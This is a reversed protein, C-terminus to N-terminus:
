DQYALAEEATFHQNFTFAFPTPGHEILHDLREKVGRETPKHGIPAWYLVYNPSTGQLFWEARRDLAQAHRGQYTFSRLHEITEWISLNLLNIGKFISGEDTPTPQSVFGASRSALYDIEDAWAVFDAMIPHDIPARM